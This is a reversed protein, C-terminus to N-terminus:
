RKSSQGAASKSASSRARDGIVLTDKGTIPIVGRPLNRYPIGKAVAQAIRSEPPLRKGRLEPVPEDIHAHAQGVGPVDRPALDDLDVRLLRSVPRAPLKDAKSLRQELPSLGPLQGPANWQLGQANVLGARPAKHKDPPSYVSVQAGLARSSPAAHTRKRM